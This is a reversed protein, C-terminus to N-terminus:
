CKDLVKYIELDCVMYLRRMIGKGMRTLSM